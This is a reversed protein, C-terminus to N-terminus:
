VIICIGLHLHDGGRSTESFEFHLSVVDLSENKFKSFDDGEEVIDDITMESKNIPTKDLVMLVETNHRDINENQKKRGEEEEKM